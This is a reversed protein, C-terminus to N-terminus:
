YVTKLTLKILKVHFLSTSPNMVGFYYKFIECTPFVKENPILLFNDFFNVGPFWFLSIFRPSPNEPIHIVDVSSIIKGFIVMYVELTLELNIGHLKIDSQKFHGHLIEYNNCEM